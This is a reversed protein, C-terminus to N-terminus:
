QFSHFLLLFSLHFLFLKYTLRSQPFIIHDQCCPPDFFDFTPQPLSTGHFTEVSPVDGRSVWCLFSNFFTPM